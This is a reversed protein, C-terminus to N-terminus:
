LDDFMAARKAQFDAVREDDDWRKRTDADHEATARQSRVAAALTAHKPDNLIKSEAIAMMKSQALQGVPDGELNRKAKRFMRDYEVRVLTKFRTAPNM